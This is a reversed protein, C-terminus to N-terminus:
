HVTDLSDLSGLYRCFERSGSECPSVERDRLTAGRDESTWHVGGAQDLLYSRLGDVGHTAPRASMSFAVVSSDYVNRIPDYTVRYKGFPGGMQGPASVSMWLEGARSSMAVFLCRNDLLTKPLSRAGNTLQELVCRRTSLLSPVPSDDIALMTSEAPPVPSPPVTRKLLISDNRARNQMQYIIGSANAYYIEGRGFTTTPDAVLWYNPVHGASDPANPVYRMQWLGLTGRATPEDICGNGAPGLAVLARPYGAAPHASRYTDLCKQTRRIAKRTSDPASNMHAAVAQMDEVSKTMAITNGRQMFATLAIAYLIAAWRGIGRGSTPSSSLASRAVRRVQRILAIGVFLLAFLLLYGFSPMAHYLQQATVVFGLLFILPPFAQVGLAVLVVSLVAGAPVLIITLVAIWALASAAGLAFPNPEGRMFAAVVFFPLSAAIGFAMPLWVSSQKWAPQMTAVAAGVLLLLVGAVIALVRARGIEGSRGGDSTLLPPLPELSSAM